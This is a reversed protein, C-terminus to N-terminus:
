HASVVLALRVMFSVLFAPCWGFCVYVTFSRPFLTLFCRAVPPHQFLPMKPWPAPTCEFLSAGALCQLSHLSASFGDVVYKCRHPRYALPPPRPAHTCQPPQSHNNATVKSPLVGGFTGSQMTESVWAGVWPVALWECRSSGQCCTIPRLPEPHPSHATRSQRPHRCRNAHLGTLACTTYM